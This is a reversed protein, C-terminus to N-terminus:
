RGMMERRAKRPLEVEAQRCKGEEPGVRVACSGERGVSPNGETPQLDPTEVPFIRFFRVSGSLQLSM